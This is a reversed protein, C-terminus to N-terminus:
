ENDKDNKEAGKENAIKWVADGGSRASRGSAAAATARDDNQEEEGIINNRCARTNKIRQFAGHQFFCINHTTFFGHINSDIRFSCSTTRRTMGIATRM